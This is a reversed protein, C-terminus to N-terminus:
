VTTAPDWIYVTNNYFVMMDGNGFITPNEQMYFGGTTNVTSTVEGLAAVRGRTFIEQMGLITYGKAVLSATDGAYCNIVAGVPVGADKWNLM